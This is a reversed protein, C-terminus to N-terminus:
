RPFDRIIRIKSLGRIVKRSQTAAEKILEADKPFPKELMEVLCDLKDLWDGAASEAASIFENALALPYVRHISIRNDGKVKATLPKKM